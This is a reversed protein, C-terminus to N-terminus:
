VHLLQAAALGIGLTGMAIVFVLGPPSGSRHGETTERRPMANACWVTCKMADTSLALDVAGGRARIGACTGDSGSPAGDRFPVGQSCGPHRSTHLIKPHGHRASLTPTSLINKWVGVCQSPVGRLSFLTDPRTCSKPIAMALRSPPHLFVSPCAFKGAIFEDFNQMEQPLSVTFCRRGTAQIAVGKCTWADKVYNRLATSQEEISSASQIRGGDM